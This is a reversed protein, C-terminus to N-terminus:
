RGQSRYVFNINCDRREPLLLGSLIHHLVHSASVKEPRDGPTSDRQCQTARRRFNRRGCLSPGVENKDQRVVLSMIRHSARPIRENTRGIDIRQRGAANPKLIREDGKRNATWASRRTQGTSVSAGGAHCGNGAREVLVFFCDGVSQFLRAISRAHHALPM